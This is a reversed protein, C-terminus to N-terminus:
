PHFKSDSLLFEVSTGLEQALCQLMRENPITKGTEYHSLATKTITVGSKELAWVLDRLSMQNAQRKLKLRESIM